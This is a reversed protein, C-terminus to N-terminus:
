QYEFTVHLTLTPNTFQAPLPPLQQSRAMARL